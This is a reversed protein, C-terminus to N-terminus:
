RCSYIAGDASQVLLRLGETLQVARARGDEGYIADMQQQLLRLTRGAPPRM